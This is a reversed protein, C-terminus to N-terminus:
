NATWTGSFTTTLYHTSDRGLVCVKDGVAGGSVFTGTGATGYATRATNEYRASSGLAALTIVTAVNDDNLICFSANAVPVPLTVTCTGTCVATSGPNTLTITTGAALTGAPAPTYTSDPYWSTGDYCLTIPINVTATSAAAINGGTATSWAGTPILVMCGLYAGANQAVTPATITTIQTTGSVKTIWSTPAITSASAVTPVTLASLTKHSVNGSDDLFNVTQWQLTHSTSNTGTDLQIAHAVTGLNAAHGISISNTCGLCDSSDGFFQDYEETGTAGSSAWLEEYGFASNNGLSAANRRGASAGYYSNNSSNDGLGVIEGVETDNSFAGSPGSGASNNASIIIDSSGGTILNGAFPGVCVDGSGTALQCAKEGVAVIYNSVEDQATDHGIIISGSMTTAASGAGHGEIINNSGTTLAGATYSATGDEGGLLVNWSGTTINDAVGHGYVDNEIGTILTGASNGNFSYAGYVFNYSSNFADSCNFYGICNTYSVTYTGSAPDPQGHGEPNFLSRGIGVVGYTDIWATTAAAPGIEGGIITSSSGGSLQYIHNGIMQMDAWGCGTGGVKNGILISEFLQGTTCTYGTEGAGAFPGIVVANQDEGGTRSGLDSALAGQGMVISGNNSQCHQCASNGIAILSGTNGPTFNVNTGSIAATTAISLTVVNGVLATVTSGTAIGTGSVNNYVQIGTASAVTLSTSGSSATGTTTVVDYNGLDAGANLGILVENQLTSPLPWGATFANPNIATNSHTADFLGNAINQPTAAGLAGSSNVQINGNSGGAGATSTSCTGDNKLFGSCSGSAWLAQIDSYTAARSTTSTLGFVPANAPLTAGGSAGGAAIWAMKISSWVLPVTTCSNATTATLGPFNLVNSPTGSLTHGGAADECFTPWVVQGPLGNAITWSTVNATLITPTSNALIGFSPTASPTVIIESAVANAVNSPSPTPGGKVWIGQGAVNSCTWAANPPTSNTQTYIAGVQCAILPTGTGSISASSPVIFTDWSFASSGIVVGPLTLVTVSSANVVTVTQTGATVSGSFVGNTVTSCSAAFCWQGSTLLAGTGTGDQVKSGSVATQAFAPLALLLGCFLAVKKFANM